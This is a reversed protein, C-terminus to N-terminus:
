QVYSYAFEMTEIILEDNMSNFDDVDWKVPWANAFRWTRIPEANENLLSVVINNTRIANNLGGELTAICWQALPSDKALLGKILVLNSYKATSPVPHRFDNLGGEVIEETHKEMAIGSVEKFSAEKSGTEGTISVSFCFSVPPYYISM